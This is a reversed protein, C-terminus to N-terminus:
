GLFCCAVNLHSEIGFGVVESLEPSVQLTTVLCKLSSIRLKLQSNVDMQLGKVSEFNGLIFNVELFLEDM